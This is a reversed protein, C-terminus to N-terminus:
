KSSYGDRGWGNGDGWGYGYGDGYSGWYSKSHGSCYGNGDGGGNSWGYDYGNGVGCGYTGNDWGSKDLDLVVGYQEEIWDSLIGISVPDNCGCVLSEPPRDTM